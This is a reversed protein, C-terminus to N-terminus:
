GRAHQRCARLKKVLPGGAPFSEVPKDAVGSDTRRRNNVALGACYQAQDVPENEQSAIRALIHGFQEAAFRNELEGIM